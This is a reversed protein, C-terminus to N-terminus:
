SCENKMDLSQANPDHLNVDPRNFQHVCNGYIFSSRGFWSSQRESLQVKYARSAKDLIADPCSCMDNPRNCSDEWIQTKSLFREVQRVSLPIQVHQQSTRVFAIQFLEFSRSMSSSESPFNENDPRIISPCNLMWVSYWITWVFALSGILVNQIRCLTKKFSMVSTYVRFLVDRYLLCWQM